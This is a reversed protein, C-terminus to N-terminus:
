IYFLGCFHAWFVAKTTLFLVVLSFKRLHKQLLNHCEWASSSKIAIGTEYLNVPPVYSSNKAFFSLLISGKIILNDMMFNAIQKVQLRDCFSMFINKEQAKGFLFFRPIVHGSSYFLDQWLEDTVIVFCIQLPSPIARSPSECLLARLNTDALAQM